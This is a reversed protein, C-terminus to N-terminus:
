PEKDCQGTGSNCLTGAECCGARVACDFPYSCSGDSNCVSALCQDTHDYCNDSKGVCAGNECVQCGPCTVNCCADACDCQGTSQNCVYEEGCCGDAVRCDFPYRCGGDPACVSGLCENSHDYCNDKPNPTCVGKICQFCGYCNQDTCAPPGPVVTPTSFPGSYGRRAADASSDLLSGTAAAGGLGLLGKLLSRRSRGSALSKALDDFTRHEM